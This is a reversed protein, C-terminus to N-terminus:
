GRLREVDRVAKSTRLAALINTLHKADTVQIDFV